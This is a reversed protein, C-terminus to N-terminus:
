TFLHLVAPSCVKDAGADVLSQVNELSAQDTWAKLGVSPHLIKRIYKIQNADPLATTFGTATKLYDAGADASDKCIREIEAETLMGMDTLVTLYGEREHVLKSFRAIEAKIWNMRQSQLASMNIVLEVANVGDSFALEMEAVKAETRQYGFPFGIVTILEVSTQVTDRSAKKVWYPPICLASIGHQIAAQVAAEVELDKVVPTLLNYELHAQLDKM